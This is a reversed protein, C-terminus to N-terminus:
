DFIENCYNYVMTAFSLSLGMPILKTEKRWITVNPLALICYQLRAISSNIQSVGKSLHRLKVHVRKHLTHHADSCAHLRHRTHHAASCSHFERARTRQGM